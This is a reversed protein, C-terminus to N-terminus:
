FSTVAFNRANNPYGPTEPNERLREEEVEGKGVLFGAEICQLFVSYVHFVAYVRFACEHIEMLIADLHTLSPSFFDM